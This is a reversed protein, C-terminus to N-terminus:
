YSIITPYEGTIYFLFERAQNIHFFEALLVLNCKMDDNRKEGYIRYFPDDIAKHANYLLETANRIEDIYTGGAEDHYERVTMLVFHSIPSKSNHNVM